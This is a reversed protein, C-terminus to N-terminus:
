AADSDRLAGTRGLWDTILDLYVFTAATCWVITFTLNDRSKKLAGATLGM